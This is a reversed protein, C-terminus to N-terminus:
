CTVEVREAYLHSSQSQLVFWIDPELVEYARRLVRKQVFSM